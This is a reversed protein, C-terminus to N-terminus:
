YNITIRNTKLLAKVVSTAVDNDLGCSTILHDKIEGRVAGVHKKNSELKDQAAKEQAAQVIQREIGALRETEIAALRNNEADIAQQKLLKQNNIFDNIEYADTIYALWEVNLKNQAAQENLLKERANAAVLEDDSKIKDDIAKQKQAQADDIAQQALREADATAEAAIRIDNDIQVQKLRAQEVEEAALRDAKAKAIDRDIDANMFLAIEHDSEKKAAQQDALDQALKDAKIKAQDAEWSTLPGRLEVTLAALFDKVKKRNSDIKAPIAKYEVALEKGKAELFTKSEIVRTINAKIAARGKGTSLDPVHLLADKKIKALIDDVDDGKTFFTVPKLTELVAIQNTMIISGTTEM